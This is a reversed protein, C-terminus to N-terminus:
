LRRTDARQAAPGNVVFRALASASALGSAFELVGPVDHVQDRSIEDCGHRACHPRRMQPLHGSCRYSARLACSASGPRFCTSRPRRYLRGHRCILGWRACTQRPAHGRSLRRLFKIARLRSSRQSSRRSIGRHNGRHRDCHDCAADHRRRHSAPGHSLPVPAARLSALLAPGCVMATRARSTRAKTCVVSRRLGAASLALRYRSRQPRRTRRSRM